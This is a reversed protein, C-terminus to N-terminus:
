NYHHRCSVIRICDDEIVYVLRHEKDIRRSWFNCLNFKLPEPRGIGEIEKGNSLVQTRQIDQILNNIKKLIKKDTTQWYLYDDWSEPTFVVKM